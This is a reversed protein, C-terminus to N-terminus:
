NVKKPDTKSNTSKNSKTCSSKCCQKPCTSKTKTKKVIKTTDSFAITNESKNSMLVPSFALALFALLSISLIIKKM